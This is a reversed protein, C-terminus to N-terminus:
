RRAQKPAVSEDWEGLAGTRANQRCVASAAEFRPAAPVAHAPGIRYIHRQTIMGSILCQVMANRVPGEGDAGLMM